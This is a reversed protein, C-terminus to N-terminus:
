KHYEGGGNIMFARYIQELAIVRMLQHPFTMDSFSLKIDAATKVEPCLGESSGIIFTIERGKDALGKVLEAFRESSYKAGEVCLAITEGKLCKLIKAGEEKLTKCEPIETIELRCFRSLRKSYEAVAARFYEEKLKGVCVLNIKQM